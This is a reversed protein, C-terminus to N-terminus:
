SLRGLEKDAHQAALRAISRLAHAEVADSASAIAGLGSGLLAIVERAHALRRTLEGNRREADDIELHAVYLASQLLAVDTVSTMASPCLPCDERPKGDHASHEDALAEDRLLQANAAEEAADREDGAAM